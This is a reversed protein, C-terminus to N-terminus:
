ITLSRCWPQCILNEYVYVQASNLTTTTGCSPSRDIREVVGDPYRRRKAHAANHNWKAIEHIYCLVEYINSQWNTSRVTFAILAEM